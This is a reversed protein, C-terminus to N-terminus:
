SLFDRLDVALLDDNSQMPFLTLLDIFQYENEVDFRLANLTDSCFRLDGSDVLFYPRGTHGDELYLTLPFTMNQRIYNPIEALPDRTTGFYFPVGSEILTDIFQNIEDLNQFGILDYLKLCYPDFLM